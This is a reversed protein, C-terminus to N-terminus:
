PGGLHGGQHLVASNVHLSLIPCGKQVILSFLGENGGGGHLEDRAHDGQIEDALIVVELGIKQDVSGRVQIHFTISIREDDGLFKGEDHRTQLLAAKLLHVSNIQIG